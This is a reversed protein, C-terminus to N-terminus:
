RAERLLVRLETFTLSVDHLVHRSGKSCLKSQGSLYIYRTCYM